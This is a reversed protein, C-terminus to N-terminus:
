NRVYQGDKKSCDMDAIPGYIFGLVPYNSKGKERRATKKKPNYVYSVKEDILEDLDWNSESVTLTYTGDDNKEVVEVVAVHGTPIKKNKDIVMISNADPVFGKASKLDWCEWANYAGMDLNCSSLGPLCSRITGEKVQDSFYERVYQVCQGGKEGDRSKKIESSEPMLSALPLPDQIPRDDVGPLVVDVEPATVSTFAPMSALDQRTQVIHQDIQVKIDGLKNISNNIETRVAEGDTVDTLDISEVQEIVGTLEGAVSSSLSTGANPLAGATGVKGGIVTFARNKDSLVWNATKLCNTGKKIEDPSIYLFGVSRMYHSVGSAIQVVGYAAGPIEVTPLTVGAPVPSNYSLYDQADLNYPNPLGSEKLVSNLTGELEEAGIGTLDNHFGELENGAARMKENVHTALDAGEGLGLSNQLQRSAFMELQNKTSTGISAGLEEVFQEAFTERSSLKNMSSEIVDELEATANQTIDDILEGIRAAMEPDDGMDKLLNEELYSRIQEPYSEELNKMLAEKLGNRDAVREGGDSGYPVVYPASWSKIDYGINNNIFTSAQSSVLTEIKGFDAARNYDFSKLRQAQSELDIASTPNVPMILLTFISLIIVTFVKKM